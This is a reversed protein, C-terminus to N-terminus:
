VSLFSVGALDPLDVREFDTSGARAFFAVPERRVASLVDGGVKLDAWSYAATVGRAEQPAVTIGEDGKSCWVPMVEGSAEPQDHKEARSGDPCADARVPGVLDVGTDTTAWGHPATVGVPLLAPVDLEASLVAVALVGAPGSAVEADSVQGYRTPSSALDLPLKKKQWQKAGDDSWGVVLDASTLKPPRGPGTPSASTPSTGVAYLRTDRTALDALYLDPGLTSTPTWELGDDSRWVVRSLQEGRRPEREGPATSIAYLPSGDSLGRAMGLGAKPDVRRWTVGVDGQRAGGSTAVPTGDDDDSATLRVAVATSVLLTFATMGALAQRRRGTRRRATAVVADLDGPRIHVREAATGLDLRPGDTGTM